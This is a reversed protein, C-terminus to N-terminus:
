WFEKYCLIVAVVFLRPRLTRSSRCFITLFVLMLVVFGYSLVEGGFREIGEIKTGKIQKQNHAVSSFQGSVALCSSIM